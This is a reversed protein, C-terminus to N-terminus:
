EHNGLVRETRRKELALRAADCEALEEWMEKDWDGGNLHGRVHESLAVLHRFYKQGLDDM